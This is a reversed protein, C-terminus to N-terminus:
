NILELDSEDEVVFDPKPYRVKYDKKLRDFGGGTINLLIRGRFDHKLLCALAVEAAPYITVGYVKKFEKGAKKAEKETVSFADGDSELMIDYLGGREPYLPSRNSLVKAYLYPLPDEYEGIERRKKKWSDVIPTFPENQVVFVRPKNVDFHKKLRRYGEYFAIAGTGSGVSQLYIDPLFQYKEFFSYALSALADRRAINRGGSECTLGRRDAFIRALRQAEDYSSKVEILTVNESRDIEFVCDFIAEPVFLYIEIDELKGYELFANATNGVSALTINRKYESAYKLSMIAELEKFTCTKMEVGMEPCYGYFAIYVEKGNESLEESKFIIPISNYDNKSSVPYWCFYRWLGEGEPKFPTHYETYVVAECHRYCGFSFGEDYFEANCAPCKLTYKLKM